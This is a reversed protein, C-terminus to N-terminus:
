ATGNSEGHELLGAHFLAGRFERRLDAYSCTPADRRVIVSIDYNGTLSSRLMRFIERLRRKLKNRVVARKDIKTTVTIGLRSDAGDANAVLILLHKSHLKRAGSQM